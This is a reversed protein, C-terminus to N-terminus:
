LGNHSHNDDLEEDSIGLLAAETENDLDDLGDDQFYHMSLICMRRTLM